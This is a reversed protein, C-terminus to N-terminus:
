QAPRRADPLRQLRDRPQRVSSAPNAREAHRREVPTEERRCVRRQRIADREVVADDPARNERQGRAPLRIAECADGVADGDSDRQDDAIQPCVDCADDIGDGDEDHGVPDTCTRADIQTPDFSLRGCGVVVVVLVLRWGVRVMMRREPVVVRLRSESAVGSAGDM